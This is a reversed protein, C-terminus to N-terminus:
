TIIWAVVVLVIVAGFTLLRRSREQLKRRYYMLDNTWANRKEVLKILHGRTLDNFYSRLLRHDEMKIEESGGDENDDRGIVLLLDIYEPSKEKMTGTLLLQKMKFVTIELHEENIPIDHINKSLDQFHIKIVEKALGAEFSRATM